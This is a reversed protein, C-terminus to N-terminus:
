KILGIEYEIKDSKINKFEVRFDTRVMAGFSNQSDVSVKYYLLTTQQNYFLQYSFEASSPSKLKEKIDKEISQKLEYDIGEFYEVLYVKMYYDAFQTKEGNYIYYLKINENFDWYVDQIKNNSMKVELGFGNYYDSITFIYNGNDRKSIYSINLYPVYEEQFSSPLNNFLKFIDEKIVKAEEKNYGEDILVKLSADHKLTTSYLYKPVYLSCSIVIALMTIIVIFKKYLKDKNLFLKILIIISIILILINVGLMILGQLLLDKYDFPDFNYFYHDSTSFGILVFSLIGASIALVIITILLIIGKKKTPKEIEKPVVKLDDNPCACHPCADARDSYKKGCDECKKLAM